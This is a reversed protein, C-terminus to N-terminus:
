RVEKSRVDDRFLWSKPSPFAGMCWQQAPFCVTHRHLASLDPLQQLLYSMQSNAVMFANITAATSYVPPYVFTEFNLILNLPAYILVSRSLNETRVSLLDAPTPSGNVTSANLSVFHANPSNVSTGLYTLLQISGHTNISIPNGDNDITCSGQAVVDGITLSSSTTITLNGLVTIAEQAGVQLSGAQITVDNGALSSTISAVSLAGGRGATALLISGDTGPNTVGSVGLATLTGPTNFIIKGNPLNGLSTSTFGSGPQLTIGGSSGGTSTGSNGSVDISQVTINGTSSTIQVTGGDFGGMSVVDGGTTDISGNIAIDGYATLTLAKGDAASVEGSTNLDGVVTITSNSADLILPFNGTINETTIGSAGFDVFTAAATLTIPGNYAMPGQSVSQNGAISISSANAQIASLPVSGGVVGAFALTGTTVELSFAGNVTSSFTTTGAGTGTSMSSNGMLTVANSMTITGGNVTTIDDGVQIASGSVAVSTLPTTSGVAGLLKATGTTSGASVTLSHAGDVTEQLFISGGTGGSSLTTNSSLVVPCRVNVTGGTSQLPNTGGMSLSSANVTIGGSGANQINASLTIDGDASLTLAGSSSWSVAASVTINGADICSTAGSASTDVTVSGAALNTALNTANIVAPSPSCGTFTYTGAGGPNTVNASDAGSSITINIPDLLLMGAEGRPARRDAFGQFDLHKGSVEVFGGDGGQPGGRASIKGYHFTAEDSWVIVKGGSGTEVADAKLETEPGVWTSKANHLEPNKGRYDGGVLIVGGSKGSVDIKAGNLVHVTEGLVRVEGGQAEVRGATECLEEAVLFIQGGEVRTRTAEAVKPQSGVRFFLHELGSSQVLTDGRSVQLVGHDEVRHALLLIDGDCLVTGENRITERSDGVFELPKNNLFDADLVDFTSAIFGSTQIIAGPGIFIGNPNLVYVAGNSSLSGLLQSSERGLVRNLVAADAGTQHFRLTEGAALSFQEWQVITKGSSEILCQGGSAQIPAKVDGAVCQFGSPQSFM